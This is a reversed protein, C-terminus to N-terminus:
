FIILSYNYYANKVEARISKLTTTSVLPDTATLNVQRRRGTTQIDARHRHPTGRGSPTGAVQSSPTGFNLPSSLDIESTPLGTNQVIMLSLM